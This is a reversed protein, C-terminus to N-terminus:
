KYRDLLPPNAHVTLHYTDPRRLSARIKRMSQNGPSDTYQEVPEKRIDVETRIIGAQDKPGVALVKGMPDVICSPNCWDWMIGHPPLANAAAIYVSSEYARCLGYLNEWGWTPCAILDAGALALERVAEPFQMDFCVLMGLNGFETEFIPYQSGATLQMQEGPTLHTKDYVGQIDGNRNFLVASNYVKGERATFLGAVIYTRYSKALAAFKAILPGDMAEATQILDYRDDGSFLSINVSETTVILDTGQQAAATSLTFVEQLVADRRAFLHNVSYEGPHKVDYLFHQSQILSIRVRADEEWRSM